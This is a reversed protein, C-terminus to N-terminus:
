PRGVPELLRFRRGAGPARRHHHVAPRVRGRVVARVEPRPVPRRGPGNYTEGAGGYGEALGGEVAPNFVESVFDRYRGALPTAAVTARREPEAMTNQEPHQRSLRSARHNHHRRTLEVRGTEGGSGPPPPPPPDLTLILSDIANVEPIDSFQARLQRLLNLADQTQGASRLFDVSHLRIRLQDSKDTYTRFARELNAATRAGGELPVARLAAAEYLTGSKLNDAARELNTVLEDLQEPKGWRIAAVRLAKYDATSKDEMLNGTARMPRYLPDGISVGMWSLAPIAMHAAEGFTYGQLIGPAFLDLQHTLALYPEWVNGLM